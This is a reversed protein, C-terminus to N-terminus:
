CGADRYFYDGVFRVKKGTAQETRLVDSIYVAKVKLM